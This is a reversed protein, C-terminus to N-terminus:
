AKTQISRKLLWECDVPPSGCLVLGEIRQNQLDCLISYTQPYHISLM